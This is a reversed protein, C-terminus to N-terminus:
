RSGGETIKKIFLVLTNINTSPNRYEYLDKLQIKQANKLAIDTRDKIKDFINMDGKRYNKIFKKLEKEVEKAIMPGTVPRFHLLFWLEICPNTFILEIGRTEAKKIAKRIKDNLKGPHDLVCFVRDGSGTDIDLQQMWGASVDILSCCDTDNPNKIKINNQINIPAKQILGELYRRETQGETIILIIPRISRLKIVRPSM